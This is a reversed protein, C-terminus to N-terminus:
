QTPMSFEVTAGGGLPLGLAAWIMTLILGTILMWVSYPIMTATLSGIGFNSQWRNAFTLVLPFYFMLPTIINTAGDGVRYAATAMEPSIGSLMLMPVVVPALFAWKASASGVFLNLVAAFLVMLGLVAYIPLQSAEIAAAGKIAFILGLNSWNFMAVFHAAAFVLVLYYGMDKMAESMMKVIDRHGKVTGVAAGYAWASVIFLFFFGGILSQYFPTLRAQFSCGGAALQADPCAGENVLPTGPGFTLALWVLIVGLLALGAWKLGRKEENTLNQKVETNNLNTQQADTDWPALKPEIVKDTVYWIVPVYILLMVAIFYWNGAINVPYDAVLINAAEATIGLLLADLQGMVLNASFGGSVGAFAAAIGAIPHRGAAVFVLAALPILVVYAADAALNGMMAIFAVLPTLLYKPANGVAARMATGFLGSREAVGAGLMVTLVMGLPHFHTFTKPMEVFLRQLNAASLMSQAMITGDDGIGFRAKQADPMGSLIQPSLTESVGFAASLASIIIIALILYVFLFVPDPLANGTREVWALFGKQTTSNETTPSNM